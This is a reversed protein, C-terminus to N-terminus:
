YKYVPHLIIEVWNFNVVDNTFEIVNSKHTKKAVDINICTSLNAVTLATFSKM